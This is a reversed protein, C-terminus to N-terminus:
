RVVRRLTPVSGNKLMYAGLHKAASKQDRGPLIPWRWMEWLRASVVNRESPFQMVVPVDHIKAIHKLAGITESAVTRDRNTGRPRAPVTFTEIVVISQKRFTGLRGLLSEFEATVVATPGQGAMFVPDPSQPVWVAWGTSEGPDFAIVLGGNVPIYPHNLQGIAPRSM